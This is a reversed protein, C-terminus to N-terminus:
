TRPICVRFVAGGEPHNSARITGGHLEVIRRAVALGLGTGHVRTTHFAEFIRQEQGEPIGEGRDRVTLQMQDQAEVIAVDIREDPPSADVANSLLNSVVQRIRTPDLSWSAPAADLHLTIRDPSVAAAVEEILAAPDLAVRQVEGSRVFDLLQNTLEELRVAEHLVRDARKRERSSDPLQEALLQAHGKLAALPNRIEHALVASMEGLSALHRQRAHRQEAAAARMALRYLVGAAAMLAFAGLASVGLHRAAGALLEDALVPEFEIVPRGGRGDGPPPPGGPFDRPSEGAFHPPPEGAFHPPPGGAFHPPPGPPPGPPPPPGPQPPPAAMRYRGGTRLLKGERPLDVRLEEPARTEGAWAVVRGDETVLGIFRLGRAREAAYVQDLAARPPPGNRPPAELRLAALHAEGQVLALTEVRAALNRYSAASSAVLAAGLLLAVALLGSWAGKRKASM